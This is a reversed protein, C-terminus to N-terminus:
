QKYTEFQIRDLLDNRKWQYHKLIKGKLSSQANRTWKSDVVYLRVRTANGLLGAWVAYTSTKAGILEKHTRRLFCFDQTSSQGQIRRVSLGKAELATQYELVANDREDGFQPAVLAIRHGAPLDKLMNIATQNADLLQFGQRLLHPGFNRVHLVTEDALPLQNCCNSDDDNFRFLDRLEDYYKEMLKDPYSVVSSTM